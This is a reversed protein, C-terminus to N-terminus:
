GAHTDFTLPTVTLGHRALVIYDYKANHAVKGIKPDTMSPTLAAIVKKLPLNNGSTHGVPIYYAQGPKVALSIGVIEAQMEETSTTETDFSIVKAKSLQKALDDLKDLTDVVIVEINSAKTPITVVQPENVFMALQGSKTKAPKVSAVPSAVSGSVPQGSSLAPVKSLLTRFEMEKFFEELATGTLHRSRQM